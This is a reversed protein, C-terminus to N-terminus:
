SPLQFHTICKIQALEKTDLESQMIGPKYYKNQYSDRERPLEKGDTVGVPR